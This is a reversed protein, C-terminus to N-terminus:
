EKRSCRFKVFVHVISFFFSPAPLTGRKRRRWKGAASIRLSKRNKGPLVFLWPPFPGLSRAVLLSFRGGKGGPNEPLLLLLLKSGGKEKGKGKVVVYYIPRPGLRASCLRITYGGQAFCLSKRRKKLASAACFVTPTLPASVQPHLSAM